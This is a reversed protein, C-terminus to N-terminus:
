KGLMVKVNAATTGSLNTLYVATVDSRWLLQCQHGAPVYIEAADDAGVQVTLNQDAYICMFRIAALNAIDLVTDTAGIALTFAGSWAGVTVSYDYAGAPITQLTTSSASLLGSTGTVKLTEAM